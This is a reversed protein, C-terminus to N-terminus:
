TLMWICQEKSLGLVNSESQLPSHLKTLLPASLHRRLHLRKWDCTPLVPCPETWPLCAQEAAWRCSMARCSGGIHTGECPSKDLDGKAACHVDGRLIGDGEQFYQLNGPSYSVELCEHLDRVYAKETQLLEAM